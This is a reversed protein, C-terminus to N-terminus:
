EEAAQTQAQMDAFGMTDIMLDVADQATHILSQRRFFGSGMRSQNASWAVEGSESLILRASVGVAPEERLGHQYSFESVSGVIVGDVGLYKGITQAIGADALRDIDIKRKKMEHRIVSEELLKFDNRSKLETTVLEHLIVGASPNNTLNAFPLVAVTMDRKEMHVPHRFANNTGKSSCGVLGLLLLPLTWRLLRARFLSSRRM